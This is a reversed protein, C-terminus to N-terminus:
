AAHFFCKGTLTKQNKSFYDKAIEKHGDKGSHQYLAQFGSTAYKLDKKCIICQFTTSDVKKAWRCIKTGLADNKELWSDSWHVMKLNKYTLRALFFCNKM